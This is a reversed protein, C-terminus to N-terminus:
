RGRALRAAILPAGISAAAIALGAGVPAGAGVVYGAGALGALGASVGIGVIPGPVGERKRAPQASPINQAPTPDPTRVPIPDPDTEREPAVPAPRPRQRIPPVYTPAVYPASEIVAPTDPGQRPPAPPSPATLWNPDM